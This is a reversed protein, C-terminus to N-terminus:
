SLKKCFGTPSFITEGPCLDQDKFVLLPHSPTESSVSPLPQPHGPLVVLADERGLPAREAVASGSPHSAPAPSASPQTGCKLAM